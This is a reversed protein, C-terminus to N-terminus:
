FNMPLRDNGKNELASLGFLWSSLSEGGIESAHGSRYFRQGCTTYRSRRANCISKANSTQQGGLGASPMISTCNQLGSDIPHLGQLRVGPATGVEEQHMFLIYLAEVANFSCRLPPEAFVSFARSRSWRCQSLMSGGMAALGRGSKTPM